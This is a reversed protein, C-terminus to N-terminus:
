NNFHRARRLWDVVQNLWKRGHATLELKGTAIVTGDKPFEPNPFEPPIVISRPHMTIQIDQVEYEQGNIWIKGKVEM